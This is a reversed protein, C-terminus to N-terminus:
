RQRMSGSAMEQIARAGVPGSVIRGQMADCRAQRLYELAETTEVGAACVRLRLAHAFQILARVVVSADLNHPVEGM